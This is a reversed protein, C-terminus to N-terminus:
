SPDESTSRMPRPRALAAIVGRLTRVEQETAQMRQLMNRLNRVMTPRKEPPYFFGARDLERELHEFLGFLEEKTAPRTEQLQLGPRGPGDFATRRGLSGGDVLKHWEYAVLLVAQALNISAFRPNVPAMVVVDALTIDDNSLGARESGFLVGCREGRFACAMMREAAGQPTLVPKIMDRPRATTACVFSLDAVAEQTAPYIRTGDIVWHAGSAMAAAKDNPWPDRPEVLRLDELGFNAMARASSGINEGLQPEVLIVAPPLVQATQSGAPGGVATEATETGKAKTEKSM